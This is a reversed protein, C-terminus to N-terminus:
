GILHASYCKVAALAIATMGDHRWGGAALRWGAALPLAWSQGTAASSRIM